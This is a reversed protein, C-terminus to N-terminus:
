RMIFIFCIFFDQLFVLNFCLLQSFLAYIFFLLIFSSSGFRELIFFTVFILVYRYFMGKKVKGSTSRSASGGFMDEASQVSTKLAKGESEYVPELIPLNESKIGRAQILIWGDYGETESLIKSEGLHKM